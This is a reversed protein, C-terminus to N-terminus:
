GLTGRRYIANTDELGDISFIVHGNDGISEAWTKGSSQIEVVLM